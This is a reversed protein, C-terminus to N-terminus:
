RGHASKSDTHLRKEAARLRINEEELFEIRLIAADLESVATTSLQALAEQLAQRLEDNEGRLDRMVADRVRHSGPLQARLKQFESGVYRYLLVTSIGAAKAVAEATFDAQTQAHLHLEAMLALLQERRREARMRRKM